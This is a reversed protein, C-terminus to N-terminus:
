QSDGVVLICKYSTDVYTHIHECVYVGGKLLVQDFTQKKKLIKHISMHLYYTSVHLYLRGHM